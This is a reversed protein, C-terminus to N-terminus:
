WLKFITPGYALSQQLQWDDWPPVCGEEGSGSVESSEEQEGSYEFPDSLADKFEDASGIELNKPTNTTIPVEEESLVISTEHGSSSKNKWLGLSKLM